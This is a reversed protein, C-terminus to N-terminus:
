QEARKVERIQGTTTGNYNYARGLQQTPKAELVLSNLRFRFLQSVGHVVLTDRVTRTNTLTETGDPLVQYVVPRPVNNPFRFCTFTGNDWAEMPALSKDGRMQYPGSRLGSCPDVEVNATAPKAVHPLEAHKFRLMYTMEAVSKVLKLELLYTHRNTNITFNTDPDQDTVPKLTVMNGAKNVGLSWADPDGSTILGAESMVTENPPLQILSTRGVKAQVLFVNDPTYTATQIRRDLVSREGMTEAAAKQIGASMLLAVLLYSFKNM